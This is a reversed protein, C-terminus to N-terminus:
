RKAFAVMRWACFLSLMLVSGYLLSTVVDDLNSHRTVMLWGTAAIGLSVVVILQFKRLALYYSILLGVISLIFMTMSLKPLFHAYALYDSGMLIHVITGPTATFIIVTLGGVGTLLAMSKILHMTNQRAANKVKVSPLMVQGISGTLFLIIKAVTSVAAYEGATHPDFYHKVVFVDVSSLLTIAMSAVFVLITYKLEPAMVKLDPASLYTSNKPRFFGLKKAAMAAYFFAVGQAAVIGGIAGASKLGIIVLAVSFLIKTFASIALSVSASAFRKHARLFANRFALPVSIVIALLILMFPLVSEFQFFTKLQWSFAALVIAIGISLMFAFKELEFLIHQKKAENDYNAVVNVTVQGLVILFLSLQTFLATLAQVEGFPVPELFRALVPYYLYNGVGVLLSGIFFIANHRLFTSSTIRKLVNM